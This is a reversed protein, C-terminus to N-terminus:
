RTTGLAGVLAVAACMALYTWMKGDNGFYALGGVLVASAAVFYIAFARRWPWRSPMWRRTVLSLLLSVLLAPAVFNAIHFLLDLPGM